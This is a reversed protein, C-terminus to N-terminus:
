RPEDVMSLVYRAIQKASEEGLSTFEVGIARPEGETPRAARSWRVVGIEAVERGDLPLAFRVTVEAGDAVKGRTVVFMGGESIDESRGDMAGIGAMEVRVPTRYLARSARRLESPLPTEAAAPLIAPADTSPLASPSRREPNAHLLEIALAAKPGTSTARAWSGDTTRWPGAVALAEIFANVSAFRDPGVMARAIVKALKPPLDVRTIDEGEHRMRGVFAYFACAGLGALDHAINDLRSLGAAGDAGRLSPEGM